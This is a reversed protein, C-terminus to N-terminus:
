GRSAPRGPQHRHRPASAPAHTSRPAHEQGGLPQMAIVRGHRDQRLSLGIRAADPGIDPIVPREASELRRRGEIIGRAIPPLFMGLAMQLAEGANQLGIGIAAIIWQEFDVAAGTRQCLRQAPCMRTALEEHKGVNGRIGFAALLAVGIEGIASSATFRISASNSMSRSM